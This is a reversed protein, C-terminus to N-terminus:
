DCPPFMVCVFWGFFGLLLALLPECALLKVVLVVVVFSFLLLGAGAFLGADRGRGTCITNSKVADCSFMM